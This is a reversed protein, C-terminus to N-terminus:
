EKNIEASQLKANAKVQKDIKKSLNYGNVLSPTWLHLNSHGVPLLEIKIGLACDENQREFISQNCTITINGSVKDIAYYTYDTTFAGHRIIIRKDTLCVFYNKSAKSSILCHILITALLISSIAFLIWVGESHCILGVIGVM